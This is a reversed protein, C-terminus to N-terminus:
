VPIFGSSFLFPSLFLIICIIMASTIISFLSLLVYEFIIIVISVPLIAIAFVILTVKFYSQRRIMHYYNAYSIDVLRGLLDLSLVVIVVMALIASDGM